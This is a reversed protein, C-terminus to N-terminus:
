SSVLLVPAPEVRHPHKPLLYMHPYTQMVGRLFFFESCPSTGCGMRLGMGFISNLIPHSLPHTIASGRMESSKKLPPTHFVNGLIGKYKKSFVKSLYHFMTHTPMHTPLHAHPNTSPCIPTPPTPPYTTPLLPPLRMGVGELSHPIISSRCSM